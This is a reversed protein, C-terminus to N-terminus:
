CLLQHQKGKQMNDVAWLPRLNALSWAARVEPDDPGTFKFRALPIIHDIHWEGYNSWSMGKVFQRELHRKLDDITYGLIAQWKRGNKGRKLAAYLSTRIANRLFVAPETKRREKIRMRVSANRARCPDCFKSNWRRAPFDGNCFACTIIQGPQVFGGALRRRRAQTEKIAQPACPACYMKLPATRVISQGCAACNIIEGFRKRRPRHTDYWRRQAARTRAACAECQRSVPVRRCGPCFIESRSKSQSNSCEPKLM